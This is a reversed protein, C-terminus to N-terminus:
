IKKLHIIDVYHSDMIRCICLQAYFLASGSSLYGLYHGLSLFRLCVDM